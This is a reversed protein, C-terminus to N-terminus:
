PQPRPRRPPDQKRVRTLSVARYFVDDMSVSHDKYCYNWREQAIRLKDGSKTLYWVGFAGEQDYLPDNPDVPSVLDNGAGNKFVRYMQRGSFDRSADAVTREFNAREDWITGSLYCDGGGAQKQSNLTTVTNFHAGKADVSVFAYGILTGASDPQVYVDCRTPAYQPASDLSCGEIAYKALDGDAMKLDSNQPLRSLDFGSVREVLYTEGSEVRITEPGNHPKKAEDEKAATQDHRTCAALSAAAVLITLVKSVTLPGGSGLKL